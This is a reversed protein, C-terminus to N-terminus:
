LSCIIEKSSSFVNTRYCLKPCKNLIDKCQITPADLRVLHQSKGQNRQIAALFFGYGSRLREWNVM